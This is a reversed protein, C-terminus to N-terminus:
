WIVTRGAFICSLIRKNYYEKLNGRKIWKSLLGVNGQVCTLGCVPFVIYLIHLMTYGKWVVM